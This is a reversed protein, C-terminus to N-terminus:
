FNSWILWKDLLLGVGNQFANAELQYLQSSLFAALQNPDFVLCGTTQLLPLALVATLLGKLPFMRRNYTM